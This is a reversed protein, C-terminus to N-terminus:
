EEDVEIKIFENGVGSFYVYGSPTQGYFYVPYRSLRALKEFDRRAQTPNKSGNIESEVTSPEVVIIHDNLTLQSLCQGTASNVIVADCYSEFHNSTCQDQSRYAVLSILDARDIAPGLEVIKSCNEIASSRQDISAPAFKFLFAGDSVPTSAICSAVAM